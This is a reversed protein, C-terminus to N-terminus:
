PFLVFSLNTAYSDRPGNNSTHTLMCKTESIYRITFFDEVNTGNEHITTIYQQINYDSGDLSFNEVAFSNSDYGAATVVHPVDGWGWRSWSTYDSAIKEESITISFDLGSNHYKSIKLFPAIELNTYQPDATEGTASCEKYEFFQNKNGADDFQSVTSVFTKEGYYTYSFYIKYRLGDEANRFIYTISKQPGNRYSTYAIMEDKTFYYHKEEWSLKIAKDHIIFTPKETEGEGYYRAMKLEEPYKFNEYSTLDFPFDGGKATESENTCGFLLFVFSVLYIFNKM